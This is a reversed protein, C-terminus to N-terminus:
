DFSAEEIWEIYQEMFLSWFEDNGSLEILKEQIRDLQKTETITKEDPEILVQQQSGTIQLFELSRLFGDFSAAVEMPEWTGIGHMATYVPLSSVATDVFFPDGVETDSGIVVWSKQWRGDEDSSLDVGDVTVSYGFQAEDIKNGAVLEIGHCGFYAARFSSEALMKQLAKM